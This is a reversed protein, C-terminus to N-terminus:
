WHEAAMFVAKVLFGEYFRNSGIPAPPRVWPKQCGATTRGPLACQGSRGRYATSGGYSTWLATLAADAVV